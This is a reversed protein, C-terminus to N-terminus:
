IFRLFFFFIKLKLQLKTEEKVEWIMVGQGQMKNNKYDGEYIKKDPYIYKGKGEIVNNTFQGIYASGDKWTFTGQGHMIGM